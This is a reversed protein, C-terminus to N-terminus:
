SSEVFFLYDLESGEEGEDGAYIGLAPKNWVTTNTTIGRQQQTINSLGPRLRIKGDNLCTKTEYCSNNNVGDRPFRM